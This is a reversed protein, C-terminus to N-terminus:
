AIDKLVQKVENMPLGSLAETDLGRWGFKEWGIVLDRVWKVRSGVKMAETVVEKVIRGEGLKM